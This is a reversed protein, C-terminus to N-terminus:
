LEIYDLCNTLPFPEKSLFEKISTLLSLLYPEDTEVQTFQRLYHVADTKNQFKVSTLYHQTLEAPYGLDDAWWTDKRKKYICIVEVKSKAYLIRYCEDAQEEWTGPEIYSM